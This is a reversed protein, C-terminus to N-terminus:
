AKKAARESGIRLMCEMRFSRQSNEGAAVHRTSKLEVSGCVGSLRISTVFREISEDDLATGSLDLVLKQGSLSKAEGADNAMRIRLEDLRVNGDSSRASHGILGLISLPVHLNSLSALKAHQLELHRLDGLLRDGESILQHVDAVGVELQDVERQLDQSQHWSVLWLGLGAVLCVTWLVIWQKLSRRILLRIQLQDPILNLSKKM